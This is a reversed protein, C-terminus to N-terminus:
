EPLVITYKMVDGEFVPRDAYQQIKTLYIELNGNERNQIISFNSFQVQDGEGDKKTDILTLTDKKLVGWEEDVEAIYLPYRPYNGNIETPDTINGLWYLKGNKISRVFLSYTASSYVVEKSDFFWPMPTSFTKCEDESICFYKFGPTYPCMKPNWDFIANSVRFVMLYKGSNLKTIVPEMVGRSSQKETLYLPRSFTFDYRKKNNDWTGRALMFGGGHGSRSPFVENVDVGAIKCIKDMPICELSFLVDGDPLVNFQVAMGNNKHLFEPDRNYTKEDFETNGDEYAIMQRYVGEDDRVTVFGHDRIAIEGKWDLDCAIMYGGLYIRHTNVTIYHNHVPNYVDRSAFDGWYQYEDEGLPFRGAQDERQWEGWTKGNDNSDRFEVYEHTDSQVELARVQRLNLGEPETYYHKYVECAADNRAPSVIESIVKCKM